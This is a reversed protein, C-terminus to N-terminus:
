LISKLFKKQEPVADYFSEILVSPVAVPNTLDAWASLPASAITLDRHQLKSPHRVYIGYLGECFHRLDNATNENVCQAFPFLGNVLGQEIYQTKSLVAKM